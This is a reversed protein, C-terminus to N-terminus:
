LFYLGGNKRLHSFSSKVLNWALLIQVGKAYNQIKLPLFLIKQITGVDIVNKVKPKLLKFKEWITRM